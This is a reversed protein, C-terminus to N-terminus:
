YNCLNILIISEIMGYIKECMQLSKESGLKAFAKAARIERAHNKEHKYKKM